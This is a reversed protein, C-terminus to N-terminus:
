TDHIIHLPPCLTVSHPLRPGLELFSPHFLTYYTFHLLHWSHTLPPLSPCFTLAHHGYQASHSFDHHYYACHLSCLQGSLLTPPISTVLPCLSHVHLSGLPLAHNFGTSHCRTLPLPPIHASRSAWPRLGTQRQTELGERGADRESMEPNRGPKAEQWRQTYTLIKRRGQTDM